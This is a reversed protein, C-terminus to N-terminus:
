SRTSPVVPPQRMKSWLARLPDGITAPLMASGYAAQGYYEALAATERGLEPSAAGLRCAYEFPTENERRRCGRERGYAQLAEFTYRILEVRNM